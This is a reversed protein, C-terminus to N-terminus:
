PNLKFNKIIEKVKEDETESILNLVSDIFVRVESEETLKLKKYVYIWNEPYDNVIKEVM